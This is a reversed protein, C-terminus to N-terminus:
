WSYGKAKGWQVWAHAMRKVNGEDEAKVPNAGTISRLAWHWHHPREAMERLLLPVALPGLGIIRQYAPHLIMKEFSSVLRVAEKWERALGLFEQEVSKTKPSTTTEAGRLVEEVRRLL